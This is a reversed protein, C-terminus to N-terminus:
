KIAAFICLQIFKLGEPPRIIKVNDMNPKLYYEDIM